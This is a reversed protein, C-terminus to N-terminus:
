FFNIDRWQLLQWWFHRLNKEHFSLKNQINSVHEAKFLTKFEDM